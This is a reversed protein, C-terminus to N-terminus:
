PQVTLRSTVRGVGFTGRAISEAKLKELNNAVAGALIVATGDVVIHIPPNAMNAYRVFLDNGYINRFLLERLRDDSQSAPLVRIESELERVGLVKGVREEIEDKKFPQTVFGGLTVVGGEEISFTIDDFVTYRSYTVVANVIEQAMSSASEPAAVELDSEVAEVGPVSLAVEIAKMKAYANRPKGRLTVVGNVALVEVVDEDLKEKRLESWVAEELAPDREQGLALPAGVLCLLLVALLERPPSPQIIKVRGNYEL